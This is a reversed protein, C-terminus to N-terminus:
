IIRISSRITKFKQFFEKKETHPVTPGSSTEIDKLQDTEYLHTFQEFDGLLVNSLGDVVSVLLNVFATVPSLLCRLGNFTNRLFRKLGFGVHFESFFRNWPNYIIDLVLSNLGLWLGDLIGVPKVNKKGLIKYFINLLHGMSQAAGGVVFLVFYKLGNNIGILFGEFSNKFKKCGSFPQSFLYVFGKLVGHLVAFSNSLWASPLSQRILQKFYSNRLVGALEEFTAVTQTVEEAFFHVCVSPTDLPLADLLQLSQRSLKVDSTRIALIVTIPEIRLMKFYKKGFTRKRDSYCPIPCGSVENNDLKDGPTNSYASTITEFYDVIQEIVRMEVNLSVPSLKVYIRDFTQITTSFLTCTMRFALFSEQVSHRNTIAKMIVPIFGQVFHDIHCGKISLGVDIVWDNERNEMDVNDISNYGSNNTNFKDLTQKPTGLPTNLQSPSNTNFGGKWLSVTFNLNNVHAALVMKKKSSMTTTIRPTTFTLIIRSWVSNIRKVQLLEVRQLLKCLLLYDDVFCIVRTGDSKMVCTIYLTLDSNVTETSLKDFTYSKISKLTDINYIKWGVNLNVTFGLRRDDTKYLVYPTLKLRELVTIKDWEYVNGVGDVMCNSSNGTNDKTNTSDKTNTNTNTINHNPDIIYLKFSTLNFLQYTTNTAVSIIYYLGNFKCPLGYEFKGVVINVDLILGDLSEVANTNTTNNDSNKILNSLPSTNTNNPKIQLNLPIKHPTLTLNCTLKTSKHIIDMKLDKYFTNVSVQENAKIITEQNIATKLVIDYPLKNVFTYYNHFVVVRTDLKTLGLVRVSCGLSICEKEVFGKEDNKKKYIVDNESATESSERSATDSEGVSNFTQLSELSTTEYQRTVINDKEMDEPNDGINSTNNTVNVLSKDMAITNLIQLNIPPRNSTTSSFDLKEVQNTPLYNLSKDDLNNMKCYARLKSNNAEKSTTYFKFNPPILYGNLCLFHSTFNEFIYPWFFTVKNRNLSLSVYNKKVIQYFVEKNKRYSQSLLPEFHTFTTEFIPGSSFSLSKSTVFSGTNPLNVEFMDSKYELLEERYQNISPKSVTNLILSCGKLTLKLYFKNNQIPIGWSQNPNLLKMGGSNQILSISDTNEHTTTYKYSSQKSTSIQVILDFPLKNVISLMPEIRIIYKVSDLENTDNVPQSTCTCILSIGNRFRLVEEHRMKSGSPTFIPNNLVSKLMGFGLNDNNSGSYTIIPLQRSNYWSIPVGVSTYKELLIDDVKELAKSQRSVSNVPNVSNTNYQSITILIDTLNEIRVNTSVIVKDNIQHILIVGGVNPLKLVSENGEYRGLYMYNNEMDMINMNGIGTTNLTNNTNTHTNTINNLISNGIFKSSPIHTYSITIRRKNNSKTDTQNTSYTHLNIFDTVNNTNGYLLNNDIYGLLVDCNSFIGNKNNILLTFERNFLNVSADKEVTFYDLERKVNGSFVCIEYDLENYVTIRSSEISKEIEKIRKLTTIFYKILRSMNNNFDLMVIGLQINISLETPLMEVSNVNLTDETVQSDTNLTNTILTLKFQTNQLLYVNTNFKNNLLSLNFLFSLTFNPSDSSTNTKPNLIDLIFDNIVLGLILSNPGTPMIVKFERVLVNICFKKQSLHYLKDLKEFLVVSRNVGIKEDIGMRDLINEVNNVDSDDSTNVTDSAGTIDSTDETNTDTTTNTLIQTIYNPILYDKLFYLRVLDQLSTCVKINELESQVLLNKDFNTESNLKFKILFNKLELLFRNCPDNVKAIILGDNQDVLLKHNNEVLLVAGLSLSFHRIMAKYYNNNSITGSFLLCIVHMRDDYSRLHIGNENDVNNIRKLIKPLVNEYNTNSDLNESTVISNEVTNNTYYNINPFLWLEYMNLTITFKITPDLHKPEKELKTSKFDSNNFSLFLLILINIFDPHIETLTNDIVINLQNSKTNKSFTLLVQGKQKGLLEENIDYIQSAKTRTEYVNDFVYKGFCDLVQFNLLSVQCLCKPGNKVFIIRKENISVNLIKILEFKDKPDDFLEISSSRNLKNGSESSQNILNKPHNTYLDLLFISNYLTLILDGDFTYYQHSVLDLTESDIEFEKGHRSISYIQDEDLNYQVLAKLSYTFSAMLKNQPYVKLIRFRDRDAKNVMATNTTKPLFKSHINLSYDCSLSTINCMLNLQIEALVTLKDSKESQKKVVAPNSNVQIYHQINNVSQNILKIYSNLEEVMKLDLNFLFEGVKIDGKAHIVTGIKSAKLSSNIQLNDSNEIIQVSEIFKQILQNLNSSSLLESLQPNGSAYHVLYQSIYERNLVPKLRSFSSMKTYFIPVLLDDDNCTPLLCRTVHSFWYENFLESISNFVENVGITTGDSDKTVTDTGTGTNTTSNLHYWIAIQTLKLIIESNPNQNITDEQNPNFLSYNELSLQLDILSLTLFRLYNSLLLGFSLRTVDLYINLDTKNLRCYIDLTIGFNDLYVCVGTTSVFVELNELCNVKTNNGKNIELNNYQEFIYNILLQDYKLYLSRLELMVKFNPNKKIRLSIQGNEVSKCTIENNQLDEMKCGMLIEYGETGLDPGGNIMYNYTLLNSGGLNVKVDLREQAIFLDFNLTYIMLSYLITSNKVLLLTFDYLTLILKIDWDSYFKILESEFVPTCYCTMLIFVTKELELRLKEKEPDFNFFDHPTFKPKIEFYSMSQPFCTCEKLRDVLEKIGNCKIILQDIYQTLPILQLLNSNVKVKNLNVLFVGNEKILHISFEKVSLLEEKMNDVSIPEVRNVGDINNISNVTNNQIKINQIAIKKSFTYSDVLVNISELSVELCKNSMYGLSDICFLDSKANNFWDCYKDMDVMYCEDVNNKVLMRVNEEMGNGETTTITNTTNTNTTNPYYYHISHQYSWNTVIQQNYQSLHKANKHIKDSNGFLCLLKMDMGTFNVLNRNKTCLKERIMLVLSKVNEDMSNIFKDILEVMEKSYNKFPYNIRYSSTIFSRHLFLEFSLLEKTVRTTLNTEVANYLELATNGILFFRGMNVLNKKVFNNYAEIGVGIVSDFVNELRFQNVNDSGFNHFFSQFDELLTMPGAVIREDFVKGFVVDCSISYKKLETEVRALLCLPKSLFIKISSRRDSIQVINFYFTSLEAMICMISKSNPNSNPNVNTNLSPNTNYVRTNPNVNPTEDPNINTDFLTSIPIINVSLNPAIIGFSMLGLFWHDNNTSEPKLGLGKGSHLLHNFNFYNSGYKDAEMNIFNRKFEDDYKEEKFIKEIKIKELETVTNLDDAGTDENTGNTNPTQSHSNNQSRKSTFNRLRIIIGISTELEFKNLFSIEENTPNVKELIKCYKIANQLSPIKCSSATAGHKFASLIKVFRIFDHLMHVFESCLNLKLKKYKVSGDFLQAYYEQEADENSCLFLKIKKMPEYSIREVFFISNFNWVKVSIGVYIGTKSTLRFRRHPTNLLDLYRMECKKIPKKIIKRTNQSCFNCFDSKKVQLFDELQVREFEDDSVESSFLDDSFHSGDESEDTGFNSTAFKTNNEVDLGNTNINRHKSTILHSYLNFDIQVGKSNFFLCMLLHKLYGEREFDNMLPTKPDVYGGTVLDARIVVSFPTKYIVDDVFTIKVDKARVSLCNVIKATKDATSNLKSFKLWKNLNSKKKNNLLTLCLKPDFEDLRKARVVLDIGEVDVRIKGSKGGRFLASWDAKVVIRRINSSVLSFPSSYNEFVIEPISIDVLHIEPDTLSTVCVHDLPIWAEILERGFVRILGNVIYELM